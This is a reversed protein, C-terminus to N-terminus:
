FTDLYSVTLGLRSTSRLSLLGSRAGTTCLVLPVIRIHMEFWSIFGLFFIHIIWAM